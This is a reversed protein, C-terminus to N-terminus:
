IRQAHKRIQIIITDNNKNNRGWLTNYPNFLIIHITLYLQNIRLHFSLVIDNCKKDKGYVPDPRRM